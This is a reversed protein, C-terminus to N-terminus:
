KFHNKIASIKDEAEAIKAIEVEVAEVIDSHEGIGAPNRTYVLINAKAMEIQGELKKILAKLLFNM